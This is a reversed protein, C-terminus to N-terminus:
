PIKIAALAEMMLKLDHKMEDTVVLDAHSRPGEFRVIVDKSEIMKRVIGQMNRTYPIDAHEWVTGSSDHEFKLPPSTWRFEDAAVKIREAQIPADGHYSVSLWLKPQTKTLHGGFSIHSEFAYDHGSPTPRPAEVVVRREVRDCTTSYVQLAEVLRDHASAIQADIFDKVCDALPSNRQSASPSRAPEPEPKPDREALREDTYAAQHAVAASGTSQTSTASAPPAPPPTTTACAIACSSIVMLASRVGM